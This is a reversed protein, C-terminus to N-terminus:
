ILQVARLARFYISRAERPNIDTPEKEEEHDEHEFVKCRWGLGVALCGM